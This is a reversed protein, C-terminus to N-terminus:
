NSGCSSDGSGDAGAGSCTAAKGPGDCESQPDYGEHIPRCLGNTDYTYHNNCGMCRGNCANECCVGDVCSLGNQCMADVACAEGQAVPHICRQSDCFGGPCWDNNDCSVCINGKGDNPVDGCLNTWCDGGDGCDAGASAGCLGDLGCQQGNSNCGAQAGLVLVCLGQAGEVVCSNCPGDCTSVCCVGDACHTMNACDNDSGCKQGDTCTQGCSAGCDIDTEDGNKLGDHCRCYGPTEGCGGHSECTDGAMCWSDQSCDCAGGAGASGGSTGASGGNTGASGSTGASGGSGSGAGGGKGKFCDLTPDLDCNGLNATCAPLSGLFFAIVCAVSTRM